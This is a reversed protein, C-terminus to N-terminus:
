PQLHDLHLKKRRQTRDVKPIEKKEEAEMKTNINVIEKANEEEEGKM